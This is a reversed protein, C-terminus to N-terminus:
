ETKSTGVLPAGLSDRCARMNMRYEMQGGDITALIHHVSTVLHKGSHYPTGQSKVPVNIPVDANELPRTSPYNIIIVSGARVDPAGPVDLVTQVHQIERLQRNRLVISERLREEVPSDGKGKIYPSQSSWANSPITFLRVNKGVAYEFNNPYVPYEDLHTTDKFTKSYRSDEAHEQKRALWDFHVMQSRLTGSAIDALLDFAQSQEVRLLSNRYISDAVQDAGTIVGPNAEYVRPEKPADKILKAISTFHFGDLTEFFVFNSERKDKTQALVTFYNIAKLPSYNPITVNIKDFTPENTVIQKKDLKFYDTLIGEVAQQCTMSKFARCVRHSVSTVFENTVFEMTYLRWDHKPFSTDHVKSIRFARKFTKANGDSDEVSFAIALTEVGVIPIYEVLGVNELLTISGSITPQFINEFIDIRQVFPLLDLGYERVTRKDDETAGRMYLGPALIACKLLRVQRPKTLM